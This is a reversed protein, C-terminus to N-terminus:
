QHSPCRTRVSGWEDDWRWLLGGPGMGTHAAIQIEFPKDPPLVPGLWLHPSRGPAPSLLVGMRHERGQLGLWKKNWGITGSVDYCRTPPPLAVLRMVPFASLNPHRALGRWSPILPPLIRKTRHGLWGRAVIPTVSSSIALAMAPCLHKLLGHYLDCHTSKREWSSEKRINFHSSM